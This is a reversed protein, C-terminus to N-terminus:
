ASFPFKSIVDIAKELVTLIHIHRKKHLKNETKLMDLTSTM